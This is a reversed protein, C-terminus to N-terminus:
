RAAGAPFMVKWRYYYESGVTENSLYVLENRNGSADIPDDGQQVTLGQPASPLEPWEIRLDDLMWLASRAFYGLEAHHRKAELETIVVIPLVVEHEAFREPPHLAHGWSAGMVHLDAEARVDLNATPEDLVLVSAGRGVAHFARALAVKQWQGISLETGDRFM